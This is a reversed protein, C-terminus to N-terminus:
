DQISTLIGNDFYLYHYWGYVWQEHTAGSVITRNKRYPEGWAMVCMEKNMGLTVKGEAILTGLKQGYANICSQRFQAEEKLRREESAKQEALRQEERMQRQQEELLHQKETKMNGSLHAKNGIKNPLKLKITEGAQNEMIFFPVLIPEKDLPILTLERCIWKDGKKVNVLEGTKIDVLESIKDTAIFSQNEFMAKAKVFYSTLLAFYPGNLHIQDTTFRDNLWDFFWLLPENTDREKLLFALKSSYKEANSFTGHGKSDIDCIVLNTIIYYKNSVDSYALKETINGLSDCKYFGCKEDRYPSYPRYIELTNSPTNIEAKLRKSQLDAIQRYLNNSFPRKSAKEQLM